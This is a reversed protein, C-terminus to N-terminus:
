ARRTFVDRLGDLSWARRGTHGMARVAYHSDHMPGYAAACSGGVRVAAHRRSRPLDAHHPLIRQSSPLVDRSIKSRETVRMMDDDSDFRTTTTRRVLSGIVVVIRRSPIM